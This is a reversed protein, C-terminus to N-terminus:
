GSEECTEVETSWLTQFLQSAQLNLEGRLEASLPLALLLLHFSINGAQFEPTQYKKLERLSRRSVAFCCVALARPLFM